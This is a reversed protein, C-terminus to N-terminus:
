ASVTLPHETSPLMIHVRKEEAAKEKITDTDVTCFDFMGFHCPILASIESEVCLEIAEDLTFNSYLGNGNPRKDRGNIPLIAIDIANKKLIPLLSDFPVCDGSHYLTVGALEFLFGLYESEGFENFSLQDHASLIASVALLENFVYRNYDDIPIIQDDPVGAKETAYNLCAAPLVFGCDPNKEAIVPLTGPDMHDGHHHTCFVYDINKLEEPSVPPPSIRIHPYKDGKHKTALSDSLYPDVLFHFNDCYIHFGSQGLWHIQIDYLPKSDIKLHM